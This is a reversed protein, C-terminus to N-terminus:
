KSVPKVNLARAVGIFPTPFKKDSINAIMAELESNGGVFVIDLFHKARSAGVYFLRRDEPDAFTDADEDIIIIVDSELGKFKRATTFLVNGNERTTRVPHTGLKEVGQLLSAAETKVTLICIQNYAYGNNRYQDILMSIQKLAAERDGCIYFKPMDGKVSKNKVKPEVGIPKGSTDAISYTNRCNINLVLRCEANKLWDPFERGQVFQNKDFFVYFAGEQLLAIDYLREIEGDHFDQGEDIIIHRYEWEYSDYNELFQLIDEREVAPVKLKQCALQPLNYFDINEFKKPNENKLDQLYIRLFQNFCLFLVKGSKALRKAKEIALCTKGTGAAGQIAAVRQEDLYDLLSSQERTLRDFVEQQELRKSKLSPMVRYLPAFLDLIEDEPTNDLRTHRYGEYFDYVGDIYKQPSELANELLVIEPHYEMPLVGIADRRSVSPFWVASEVMCYQPSNTGETDRFKEDLLDLFRYKSKDAQKLPNKMSHREGNDTRIYTWTNNVCEIGGSKVEIVIIGKQPHFVTFDSEGYVVTNKQNRDNWRVSHFITYEDPLKKLAEFVQREGFSNNDEEMMQPIMQAM